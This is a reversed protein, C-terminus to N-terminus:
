FFTLIGNYLNEFCGCFSNFKEKAKKLLNIGKTIKILNEKSFLYSKNVFLDYLYTELKHNFSIKQQIFFIEEAYFSDEKQLKKILFSKLYKKQFLKIFGKKAYSKKKLKYMSVKKQQINKPIEVKIYDDSFTKYEECKGDECGIFSQTYYLDDQNKEILSLRIGFYPLEEDILFDKTKVFNYTKQLFFFDFSLFENKKNFIKQKIVSNREFKEEKSINNKNEFIEIKQINNSFFDKLFILLRGIADRHEVTIASFLCIFFFGILESQTKESNNIKIVKKNFNEETLNKSKENFSVKKNKFGFCCDTRFCIYIDNLKKKENKDKTKRKNLSFMLNIRISFFLIFFLNIKTKKDM